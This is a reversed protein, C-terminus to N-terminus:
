MSDVLESGHEQRLKNLGAAARARMSELIAEVSEGEQEGEDIRNTVECTNSLAESIMPVNLRMAYKCLRVMWPLRNKQNNGWGKFVDTVAFAAQVVLMVCGLLATDVRLDELSYEDIAKEAEGGIDRAAQQLAAHYTQLM